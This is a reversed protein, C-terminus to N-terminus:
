NFDTSDHDFNFQDLTINVEMPWSKSKVLRIVNGYLDKFYFKNYRELEKSSIKLHVNLCTRYENGPCISPKGNSNAPTEIDFMKMFLGKRPIRAPWVCFLKLLIAM